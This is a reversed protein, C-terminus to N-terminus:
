FFCFVFCIWSNGCSEKKRWLSLVNLYIPPPISQSKNNEKAKRKMSSCIGSGANRDIMELLRTRNLINTDEGKVTIEM